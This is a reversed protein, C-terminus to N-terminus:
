STKQAEREAACDMCISVTPTPLLHHIHRPCLNALRQCFDALTMAPYKENAMERVCDGAGPRVRDYGDAITSLVDRMVKNGKTEDTTAAQNRARNQEVVTPFYPTTCSESM